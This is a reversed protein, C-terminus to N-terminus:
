SRPIVRTSWVSASAPAAVGSIWFLSFFNKEKGMSFYLPALADFQKEAIVTGAGIRARALNLMEPWIGLLHIEKQRWRRDLVCEDRRRRRLLPVLARLLTCPTSTILDLDVTKM